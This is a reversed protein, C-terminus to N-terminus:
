NLHKLLFSISRRNAVPLGRAIKCSKLKRVSIAQFYFYLFRSHKGPINDGSIDLVFLIREKKRSKYM